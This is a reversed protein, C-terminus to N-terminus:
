KKQFFQDLQSLNICRIAPDAEAKAKQEKTSYGWRAFYVALWVPLPQLGELTKLRDEIFHVMTRPCEAALKELVGKKKGSELGYIRSEDLQLGAERALAVAFRKEKTTIIYAYEAKENVAAVTGPYFDHRALWGPLDEQMWQDRTEGFCCLLEDKALKESQMLAKLQDHYASKLQEPKKGATLLRLILISEYGTELFPRCKRFKQLLEDPLEGQFEDPWLQKCAKWGSCALEAASDCIVGDFDLAFIDM